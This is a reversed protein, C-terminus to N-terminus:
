YIEYDMENWQQHTENWKKATLNWIRNWKKAPVNWIGNWKVAPLNWIQKMENHPIEYEMEHWQQHTEYGNWQKCIEYKM